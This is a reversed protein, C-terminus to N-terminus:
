FRCPPDGTREEAVPKPQLWLTGLLSLLWGSALVDWVGYSQALNQKVEKLHGTGRVFLICIGHNPTLTM